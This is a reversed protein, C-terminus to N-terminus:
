SVLGVVYVIVWLVLALALVRTSMRLWRNKALVIQSNVHAQDLLQELAASNSM